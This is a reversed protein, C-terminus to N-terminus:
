KGKGCGGCGEKVKLQQQRRQESTPGRPNGWMKGMAIARRDWRNLDDKCIWAHCFNCWVCEKPTNDNNVLRCVDCVHM